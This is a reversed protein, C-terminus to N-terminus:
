YWPFLRVPERFLAPASRSKAGTRLTTAGSSAMQTGLRYNTGGCYIPRDTVISPRHTLIFLIYISPIHSYNKILVVVISRGSQSFLHVTHSFLRVTTRFLSPASRPAVGTRARRPPRPGARLWRQVSCNKNLVVVIFPGTHSFLHVTHSLLRFISPRNLVVVVFPGTHLFLHVIHSLLRVTRRLLAPASRPKAGTRARRPTRPGARPRRQVWGNQNVVVVIFPGTRSFLHVTRSFLRVTTRLLAPASRPKAGTRARRRSRPGARPWRQVSGKEILVVLIFPGTQSFLHITGDLLNVTHSYVSWEACCPQRRVRHQVQERAGAPDHGRVAGAEGVEDRRAGAGVHAGGRSIYLM